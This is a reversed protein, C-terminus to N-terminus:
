AVHVALIGNAERVELALLWLHEDEAAEGSWREDTPGHTESIEILLVVVTHLEQCDVNTFCM